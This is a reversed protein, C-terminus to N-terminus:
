GRSDKILEAPKYQYLLCVPMIAFIIIIIVSFAIMKPYAYAKLWRFTSVEFPQYEMFRQRCFKSLALIALGLPIVVRLFAQCLYICVIDKLSFGCAYRIGTIKKDGIVVIIIICCNILLSVWFLTGSIEEDIGSYDQKLVINANFGDRLNAFEVQIGLEKAKDKLYKQAKEFPINDGPIYAWASNRDIQSVGQEMVIVVLSDTQLTSFVGNGSGFCMVEDSVMQQGKELIGIVEYEHVIGNAQEEQFVTGLPIDKFNAGLIIGHWTSMKWKTEDVEEMESFKFNYIPLATRDITCHHLDDARGFKGITVDSFSQQIRALEPLMGVTWYNWVGIGKVMGSELAMSKLEEAEYTAYDRTIRLLGTGNIGRTLTKDCEREIVNAKFSFVQFYGILYLSIGILLISLVFRSKQSMIDEISIRLINSFKM